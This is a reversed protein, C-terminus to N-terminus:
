KQIMLHKTIIGNQTHIQIFYIGNNLKDTKYILPQANTKLQISELLQGNVNSIEIKSINDSIGSFDFSVSNQAPNPFIHIKDQLNINNVNGTSERTVTIDLLYTGTEGEFYPAVHFYITGGNKDSLNIQGPMIDDYTESWNSSDLSYSFLADVYYDNGDGSSYSDHIRAKITYNDGAPLHIKYFDNDTGIHLNSETSKIEAITGTFNVPFIHSAELSDNNEYKDPSLTPAIIKVYVPNPYNSSGALYWQPSGQFKYSIDMLYTGPAFSIIGNFNLNKNSGPAIGSESVTNITQLLNGNLSSLSIRYSGVFTAYDSSNKVSVSISANESQVLDSGSITFTSNTEINESAHKFFIQASNDFLSDGVKSWGGDSKKYFIEVFYNGPVLAAIGSTSFVAAYQNDSNITVAATDMFTLFQMNVDFIAAGIKGSFNSIGYNKIKARVQFPNKFMIGTDTASILSDMELRINKNLGSGDSPEVGIIAQHGANFGGSGGGVGVGSPNLANISFYGDYSGGWGWNFHYLGEEDYGDCVFCHGGGSGFGAYIVPRGEDLEKTLLGLWQTENYNKREVGKLTSKYDFYEKLAYETCNQIPSQASIVYAGSSSPSFNMNVSVGCDYMLTAVANNPSNVLNPMSDWHYTRSGFNASLSGYAKHNYSHFGTGNAPYDWYKLVQAMATAVCGTVSGGPCQDNVYPRQNWKTKILPEVKTGLPAMPASSTNNLYAHWSQEIEPTAAINNDIVYRIQEQYGELWKQVSPPIDSPDFRGENSYGLIPTVNDDGSIIVFGNANTNFIYYLVSSTLTPKTVTYIVKQALAFTPSERRDEAIHKTNYFNQGVKKATAIDIHKAYICHSFVLFPILFLLYKKM